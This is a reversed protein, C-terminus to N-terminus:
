QMLMVGHQSCASNKCLRKRVEHKMKDAISPLISCRTLMLNQMFSLLDAVSVLLTSQSARLSCKKLRVATKSYFERKSALQTDTSSSSHEPHGLVLLIVSFTSVIRSSM